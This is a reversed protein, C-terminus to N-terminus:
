MLTKKPLVVTTLSAKPISAATPLGGQPGVHTWHTRNVFPFPRVVGSFNGGGHGGHGGHGFGGGHGGHGFGGGHGRGNRRQLAQAEHTEVAQALLVACEDTTAGDDDSDSADPSLLHKICPILNDLSPATPIGTTSAPLATINAPLTTINTPTATATALPMKPIPLEPIGIHGPGIYLASSLQAGALLALLNLPLM